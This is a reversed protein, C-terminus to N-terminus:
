PSKPKYDFVLVANEELSASSFLEYRKTGAYIVILATNPPINGLNEAFMIIEHRSQKEDLELKIVIPKESLRQKNMLLKGNYYISVTDNDIMGNDYVNLTIDRVNVEIHNQEKNKRKILPDPKKPSDIKTIVPPPKIKVISDTPKKPIVPTPKTKVITDAPKKKIFPVTVTDKKPRQEELFCDNMSRIIQQPRSSVKVLFFSDTALGLLSMISGKITSVGELIVRGNVYSSTFRLRMLSHSGSNEMFAIGTLMWTDQNK